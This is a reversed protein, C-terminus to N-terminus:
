QRHSPIPEPEPVPEVSSFTTKRRLGLALLVGCCVGLGNAIADGLEVSRGPSYRQGLELLVGLLFMSLGATIGRRRLQFGIVPLLALLLYASFHLVKDNIHLRGVASM